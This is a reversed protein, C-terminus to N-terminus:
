YKGNICISKKSGIQDYFFYQRILNGQFIVHIDAIILDGEGCGAIVVKKNSLKARHDRVKNKLLFNEKFTFNFILVIKM